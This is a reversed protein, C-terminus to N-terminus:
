GQKAAQLLAALPKYQEQKRMNNTSKRWSEYFNKKYTLGWYDLCTLLYVNVKLPEM